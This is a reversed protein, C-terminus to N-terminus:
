QRQNQQRFLEFVFDVFYMITTVSFHFPPTEWRYIIYISTKSNRVVICRRVKVSQISGTDRSLWQRPDRNAQEQERIHVRNTPKSKYDDANWINLDSTRQVICNQKKAMCVKVRFRPKFDTLRILEKGSKKPIVYRRELNSRSRRIQIRKVRESLM